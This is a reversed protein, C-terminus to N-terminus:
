QGVDRLERKKAEENAYLFGSIVEEDRVHLSHSFHKKVAAVLDAKTANVPVDLEYFDRYKKLSTQQQTNLTEPRPSKEVVM